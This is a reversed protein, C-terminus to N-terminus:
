ATSPAMVKGATNEAVPLRVAEAMPAATASTSPQIPLFRSVTAAAAQTAANAAPISSGQFLLPSLIPFLYQNKLSRMIFYVRRSFSYWPPSLRQRVDLGSDLAHLDAFGLVKLIADTFVLTLVATLFNSDSTASFGAFAAVIYPTVVEAISLATVLPTIWLFAAFRLFARRALLSAFACYTGTLHLIFASACKLM